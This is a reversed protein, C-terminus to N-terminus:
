QQLSNRLITVNELLYNQIQTSKPRSDIFISKKSRITLKHPTEVNELPALNCGM